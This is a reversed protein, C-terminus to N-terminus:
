LGERKTWISAYILFVLWQVCNVTNRLMFLKVSLLINMVRFHQLYMHLSYHLWWDITKSETGYCSLCKLLFFLKDSIGSCVETLTEKLCFHLYSINATIFLVQFNFICLAELSNNECKRFFTVHEDWCISHNWIFNIYFSNHYHFITVM